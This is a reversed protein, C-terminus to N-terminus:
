IKKKLWKKVEEVFKEFYHMLGNISSFVMDERLNNYRHILRNRLGNAEKLADIVDMPLIKNEHLANLNSYDDRVIRARGIEM